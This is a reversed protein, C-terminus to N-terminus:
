RLFECEDATREHRPITPFTGWLPCVGFITFSDSAIILSLHQSIDYYSCLLILFINLIDMHMCIEKISVRKKTDTLYVMGFFCIVIATCADVAMFPLLVVSASSAVTSNDETQALLIYSGVNGGLFKIAETAYAFIVVLLTANQLNMSMAEGNRRSAMGSGSAASFTFSTAVIILALILLGLRIYHSMHVKSKTSEMALFTTILPSSCLMANLRLFLSENYWCLLMCLAVLSESLIGSYYKARIMSLDMMSCNSVIGDDGKNAIIYDQCNGNKLVHRFELLYTAGLALFLLGCFQASSMGSSSKKGSLDSPLAVNKEKANLKRDVSNNNGNISRSKKNTKGM